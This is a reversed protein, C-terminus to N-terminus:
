CRPWPKLIPVAVTYKDFQACRTPGFEDAVMTQLIGAPLSHRSPFAMRGYLTVHIEHVM